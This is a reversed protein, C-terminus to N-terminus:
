NLAATPLLFYECKDQEILYVLYLLLGVRGQAEVM